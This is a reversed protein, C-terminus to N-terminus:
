KNARKNKPTTKTHTHASLLPFQCKPSHYRHTGLRLNTIFDAIYIYKKETLM